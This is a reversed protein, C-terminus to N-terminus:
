YLVPNSRSHNEAYFLAHAIIKYTNVSKLVEAYKESKGMYQSFDFLPSPLTFIYVTIKPLISTKYV